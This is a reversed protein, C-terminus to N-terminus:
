TPEEDQIVHHMLYFQEIGQLTFFHAEHRLVRFADGEINAPRRDIIEGMNAIATRGDNKVGEEPKQASNIAFVLHNVRSVDGIDIVLDIGGSELLADINAM